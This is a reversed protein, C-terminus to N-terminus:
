DAREVFCEEGILSDVKSPIAIKEAKIMPQDSTKNDYHGTVRVYRNMCRSYADRPGSIAVYIGSTIDSVMAYGKTLYLYNGHSNSLYGVVSIYNSPLKDPAVIVNVLSVFFLKDRGKAPSATVFSGGLLALSFVAVLRRM